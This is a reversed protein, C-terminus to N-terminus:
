KEDNIEFIFFKFELNFVQTKQRENETFHFEENEDINDNEAEYFSQNLDDDLNLVDRGYSNSM